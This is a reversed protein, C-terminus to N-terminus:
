GKLLRSWTNQGVVGDVELYQDKQFRLVAQETFAGFDGDAGSNGVSYGYGMLLIQLSMVQTGVSGRSLVNLSIDVKAGGSQAKSGDSLVVVTHGKTNTVLIDGRLLYDSSECYKANTLIDFAGTARLAEVENGTYFDACRIGAYWVCVRVLRACDTECNKTVKSCNFGLPQVVSWLTTNQDQDYGIHNNDCAFQMDQAIKERAEASKARIM